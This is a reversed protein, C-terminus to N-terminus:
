KRGWNWGASKVRSLGRGAMKPFGNSRWARWSAPAAKSRVINRIASCGNTNPRPVDMPASTEILEFM